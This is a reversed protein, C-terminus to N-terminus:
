GVSAEQAVRAPIATVITSTSVACSNIMLGENLDHSSPHWGTGACTECQQDPYKCDPCRMALATWGNAPSELKPTM